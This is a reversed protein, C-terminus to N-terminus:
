VKYWVDGDDWWRLGDYSKVLQTWRDNSYSASFWQYSENWSLTVYKANIASWSTRQEWTIGGDTSAIVYVGQSDRVIAVHTSSNNAMCEITATEEYQPVSAEYWNRSDYSYKLDALYQSEGNTGVSQPTKEYHMMGGVEKDLNDVIGGNGAFLLYLGGLILAGIVVAIVIKVGTSIYGEGKSNFLKRMYNEKRITKPLATQGGM